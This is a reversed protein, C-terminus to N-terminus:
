KLNLYKGLKHANTMCCMKQIYAGLHKKIEIVSLLCDALKKDTCQFEYNKGRNSVLIIHKCLLGWEREDFLTYVSAGTCASSSQYM